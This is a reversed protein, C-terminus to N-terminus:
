GFLIGAMLGAAVLTEALGALQLMRPDVELLYEKVHNPFVSLAFGEALFLTLALIMIARAPEVNTASRQNSHRNHIIERPSYDRSSRPSVLGTRRQPYGVESLRIRLSM